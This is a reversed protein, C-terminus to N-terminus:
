KGAEDPLLLETEPRKVRAPKLPQSSEIPIDAAKSPDVVMGGFWEVALRSVGIQWVQRTEALTKTAALEDLLGDIARLRAHWPEPNSRLEDAWALCQERVTPFETSWAEALSQPIWQDEVRVFNHRTPEQGPWQVNLVATGGASELSEVKVDSFTSFPDSELGAGDLAGHSAAVLFSNGTQSLFEFVEIRRFRAVDSLDSECVAQLLQEIGHLQAVLKRDAESLEDGTGGSSRALQAVVKRAKQCTTVFPKWSRDDLRISFRRVLEQIDGRYSPPLFELLTRLDHRQLGALVNRVAEDAATPVKPGLSVTPKPESKSCGHNVSLCFIAAVTLLATWHRLLQRSANM